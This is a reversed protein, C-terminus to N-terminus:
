EDWDVWVADSGDSGAEESTSPADSHADTHAPAGQVAAVLDEEDVLLLEEHMDKFDLAQLASVRV